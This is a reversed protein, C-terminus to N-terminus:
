IEGEQNRQDYQPFTGDSRCLLTPLIVHPRPLLQFCLLEFGFQCEEFRLDVGMEKKVCEVVDVCEGLDVVLIGARSDMFQRPHHTIHQIVGKLVFHHEPLLNGKQFIVNVKHLKPQCVLYIKPEIDFAGKRFHGYCRHQKKGKSFICELMADAGG